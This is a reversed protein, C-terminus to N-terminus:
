LLKKYQGPKIKRQIPQGSADLAPITEVGMLLLANLSRILHVDISRQERVVELVYDIAHAHNRADLFDKFPKGQVTLGEQLFFITDGLSLTGGEIANSNYTWLYRLKAQIAETLDNNASSQREHIEAKLQDIQTLSSTLEPTSQVQYYRNM